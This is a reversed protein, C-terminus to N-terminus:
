LDVDGLALELEAGRLKTEMELWFAADTEGNFGPSLYSVIRSHLGAEWELAKRADSASCSRSEFRVLVDQEGPAIGLPDAEPWKFIVRLPSRPAAMEYLGSEKREFGLRQMVRDAREPRVTDMYNCLRSEVVSCYTDGDTEIFARSLENSAYESQRGM